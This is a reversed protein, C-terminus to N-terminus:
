SPVVPTTGVMRYSRMEDALHPLHHEVLRLLALGDILQIATDGPDWLGRDIHYPTVLVGSAADSQEVDRTLAVLVDPPVADRPPEACVYILHRSDRYAGTGRAVVRVPEGPGLERVDTVHLNMARALHSLVFRLRLPAIRDPAPTGRGRRQLWNELELKARAFIM